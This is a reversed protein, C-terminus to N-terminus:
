LLPCTSKRPRRYASAREKHESTATRSRPQVFYHECGNGGSVSICNRFQAERRFRVGSGSHPFPVAPKAAFAQSVRFRARGTNEVRRERVVNGKDGFSVLEETLWSVVRVEGAFTLRCGPIPPTMM